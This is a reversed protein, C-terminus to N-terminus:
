NFDTAKGTQVQCTAQSIGARSSLFAKAASGADVKQSKKKYEDVKSPM